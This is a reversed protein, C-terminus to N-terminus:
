FWLRVGGVLRPLGNAESESAALDRTGGFTRVWTLGVYPALERRIEYRLRFGVEGSSLGSGVGLAPNRKGYLTAELLPQLVLRNTLLLDYEIEVHAATQGADSLYGTAEVEFFGPALGQVGFALWTQAGPQLDQRLGAVVDWWRAVARGYLVHASAEGLGGDESEGESRFWLRNIDGGVWGTQSWSVGDRGRGSRWELQDFLVFSNIARDHAAHGEVVPFAAQRMTETVPPVFDPLAVRSPPPASELHGRRLEPTGPAPAPGASGHDHGAHGGTPQPEPRAPAPAPTQKPPPAGHGAHPDQPAPMVHGAHPDPTPAPQPQALARWPTVALAVLLLVTAPRNM